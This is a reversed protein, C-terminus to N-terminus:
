FLGYVLKLPKPSQILSASFFSASEMEPLAFPLLVLVMGIIGWMLLLVLIAYKALQRAQAFTLKSIGGILAIIIYPLVMM